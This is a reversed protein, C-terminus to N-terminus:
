RIIAETAVNVDNACARSELLWADALSKEGESFFHSPTTDATTKARGIKKVKPAVLILEWDDSVEFSSDGMAM